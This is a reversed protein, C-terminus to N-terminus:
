HIVTLTLHHDGVATAANIQLLPTGPYVLLPDFLAQVKITYSNGITLGTLPKAFSISWAASVVGFADDFTTLKEHTGGITTGSTVNLVQFDGIGTAVEPSTDGSGSLMIMVSTEQAVFTLNMTPVDSFDGSALNYDSALTVSDFSPRAIAVSNWKTGDNYYLGPVVDGATATNYTMMGGVHASLPSANTTASLALRPLLIGGPTLSADIDLLSDSNPSTTGIGVQAIASSFILLSFLTLARKLFHLKLKM